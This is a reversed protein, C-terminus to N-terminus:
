QWNHGFRVGGVYGLGYVTLADDDEYARELGGQTNDLSGNVGFLAQRIGKDEQQVIGVAQQVTKGEGLADFFVTLGQVVLTTLKKMGPIVNSPNQIVEKTFGMYLMDHASNTM